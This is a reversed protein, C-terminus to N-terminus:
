QMCGEREWKVFSGFISSCVNISLMRLTALDVLLLSLMYTPHPLYTCPANALGFLLLLISFSLLWFLHM